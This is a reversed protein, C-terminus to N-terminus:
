RNCHVRVTNETLFSCLKYIYIYIYIYVATKL